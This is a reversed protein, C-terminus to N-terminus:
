FGSERPIDFPEFCGERAIHFVEFVAHGDFEAGEQDHGDALKGRENFEELLASGM